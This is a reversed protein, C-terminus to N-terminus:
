VAALCCMPRSRQFEVHAAAASILTKGLNVAPRAPSKKNTHFRGKRWYM